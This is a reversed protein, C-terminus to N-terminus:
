EETADAATDTTATEEAPAATETEAQAEEGEGVVNVKFVPALKGVLKVTVDYTGVLHINEQLDVKRRDIEQGVKESLAKAIDNATISGYLRGERGVRATIVLTQMAITDALSRNEEELVAIRRAEAEKKKEIIKVAGPTAAVALKRPLLFNRAYGNKVEKLEGIAGLHDVNQTLIIKM